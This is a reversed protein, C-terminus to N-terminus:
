IVVQLTMKLVHTLSDKMDNNKLHFNVCPMELCEYTGKRWYFCQRSGRYMYIINNDIQTFVCDEEETPHLFENKKIKGMIIEDFM